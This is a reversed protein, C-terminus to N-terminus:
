QPPSGPAPTTRPGSGVTSSPAKYYQFDPADKVQDKTWSVKLKVNTPDGTTNALNGIDTSAVEFADMEIAVAKEGIGLFGGVGIVLGVVKGSKDFLLDNVDGIHANDPGLVNTGKFKSFVWQDPRQVPIFKDTSISTANEKTPASTQSQALAGSIMLASVTTTLLLKTFM